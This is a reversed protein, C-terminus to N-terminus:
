KGAKEFQQQMEETRQNREDVVQQHKEMEAFKREEALMADEKAIQEVTKVVLGKVFKQMYGSQVLDSKTLAFRSRRFGYKKTLQIDAMKAREKRQTQLDLHSLKPRGRKAM